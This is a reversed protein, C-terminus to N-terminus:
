RNAQSHSKLDILLKDSTSINLKVNNLILIGILEKIAKQQLYYFEMNQEMRNNFIFRVQYNNERLGTNKSINVQILDKYWFEKLRKGKLFSFPSVLCFYDRNFSRYDTLL